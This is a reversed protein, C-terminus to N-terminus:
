PLPKTQQFTHIIKLSDSEHFMLNNQSQLWINHSQMGTRMSVFDLITASDMLIESKPEFEPIVDKV